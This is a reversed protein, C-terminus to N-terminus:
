DGTGRSVDARAAVEAVTFDASGLESLLDQTARLIRARTDAPALELALTTKAM